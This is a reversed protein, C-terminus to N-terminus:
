RTVKGLIDENDLKVECYALHKDQVTLFFPTSSPIQRTIPKQHNALDPASKNTPLGPAGHTQQLGADPQNEKVVACTAWVIVDDRRLCYRSTKGTDKCSVCADFLRGWISFVDYAWAQSPKRAM